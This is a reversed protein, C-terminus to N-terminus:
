RDPKRNGLTIHFCDEGNPPRTLPSTPPLGLRERRYWRLGLSFVRLWVYTDGVVPSPDYFFRVAKGDCLWLALSGPLPDLAFRPLPEERVLTIHPAYKQPRVQARLAPPFLARTLAV